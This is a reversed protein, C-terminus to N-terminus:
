LCKSSTTFELYIKFIREGRVYLFASCGLIFSDLTLKLFVFGLWCLIMYGTGPLIATPRLSSDRECRNGGPLIDERYMKFFLYNNM